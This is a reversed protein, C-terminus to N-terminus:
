SKKTNSSGTISCSSSVSSTLSVTSISIGVEALTYTPKSSSKVWESLDYINDVSTEPYVEESTQPDRLTVNKAM